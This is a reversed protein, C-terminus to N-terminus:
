PGGPVESARRRLFFGKSSAGFGRGYIPPDVDDNDFTALLDYYKGLWESLKDCDFLRCPYSGKYLWRSPLVQTTIIERGFSCPHRDIILYEIDSAAIRDLLRYPFELYQLVSSLLVVNPRELALCEDIDGYFQMAESSFKERGLRAIEPQEVISWRVEVGDSLFNKCQHYSSGFAGGFDLVALRGGDALAIRALSSWLRYNPPIEDFVVGDKEWAASGNKVQEAASALRGLLTPDDYGEASSSAAAWSEFDGRYVISYGLLRNALDRLGQPIWYRIWRRNQKALQKIM